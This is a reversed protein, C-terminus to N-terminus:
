HQDAKIAQEVETIAKNTDNLAEVREGGFDHAGKQLHTRALKLESLAARLEPHQEKYGQNKQTTATTQALTIQSVSGAGVVLVIGTVAAAIQSRNLFM